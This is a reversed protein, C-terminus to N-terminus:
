PACTRLGTILDRRWPANWSRLTTRLLRARTAYSGGRLTGHDGFWPASYDEYPDPSFDPYPLFADDTWEWVNGYLGRLGLASDGAAHADVPCCALVAGDLRGRDLASGDLKGGATAPGEFPHQRFCEGGPGSPDYRAAREWEAETPLRRGAWRCYSRAEHQNVHAVPRHPELPVLRDFDRRLWDDGARRWYVPHTARAEALWARGPADWLEGRAYGADEVFARYEAQTVPARAIRFPALEVPHAWKENDFCFPIDRPAGFPFTGGPIEVDGPVPGGGDEVEQARLRAPPPWGHTQLTYVLAEGHMDEHLLVLQHFYREAPTPEVGALRELVRELVERLYELTRARDFLPLNWRTAHPVTSSDYLRDVEAHLPANGAVHRLTWREQFWAVHGLEWLPANVIPLYPGLLCEGVLGEFLELTRARADQLARGLEALSPGDGRATM